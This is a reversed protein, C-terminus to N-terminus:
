PMHYWKARGDLLQCTIELLVEQGRNLVGNSWQMIESSIAEIDTFTQLM